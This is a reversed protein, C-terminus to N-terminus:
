EESFRGEALSHDGKATLAKLFAVIADTEEQNIDYNLQLKAMVKVADELKAVSGDHFYPYTKAVNRLSPIKFVYKDMENGSIAYRGEDLQDSKTVDWYYGQLAFRHMMEGGIGQGSHCPSCGLDMFTNLGKKEIATLANYDGLLFDDVRSSSVLTEEFAALADVIHNFTLAPEAGPYVAKFQQQYITKESLRDVLFQESPIGMEDPNLIPFGAQEKLTAAKGDWFQAFHLTANYVSPTNRKEKRGDFGLSLRKNDVGYTSLNHCTNCSQSENFSLSKDMFLKEGLAIKGIPQEHELLYQETNLPTIYTIAKERLIQDNHKEKGFVAGANWLYAALITSFLFFTTIKKM